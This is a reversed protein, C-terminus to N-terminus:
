SRAGKRSENVRQERNDRSDPLSMYDPPRDDELEMLSSALSGGPPNTGIVAEVRGELAEFRGMLAVLLHREVQSEQNGPQAVAESSSNTETQSTTTAVQAQHPSINMRRAKSSPMQNPTKQQSGQLTTSIKLGPRQPLANPDTQLSRRPPTLQSNYARDVPHLHMPAALESSM